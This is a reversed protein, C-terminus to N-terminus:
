RKRQPVHSMLTQSLGGDVVIEQGTIYRARGSALFVIVDAMDHGDAIRGIPVLAERAAGTEADRYNQETMPTRVLGPSVVNSRVGRPGWEAALQRSFMILASKSTSYAGNFALPQSGTISGTHVVAGTGRALMPRGFAQTCILSGNLNVALAREWADATIDELAEPVVIGANNVLVDCPDDFARAVDAAAAAVSDRDTVDCRVGISEAGVEGALKATAAANAEDVDLAAVRAGARALELCTARGIGGGAGTVVCAAGRLGLWDTVEDAPM